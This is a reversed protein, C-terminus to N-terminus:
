DKEILFSPINKTLGLVNGHKLQSYQIQSFFTQIFRVTFWMTESIHLTSNAVKLIKFPCKVVLPLRSQLHCNLPPGMVDQTIFSGLDM